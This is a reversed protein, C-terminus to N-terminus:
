EIVDNDMCLNCRPSIHKGCEVTTLSCYKGNWTCDGKCLDGRGELGLTCMNCTAVVHNGCSVSPYECTLENENGCKSLYIKNKRLTAVANASANDGIRYDEGKHHIMIDPNSWYNISMWKGRGPYSMITKLGKIANPQSVKVRYGNASSATREDHNHRVGLIHGLEHAFGQSRLACAKTIVSYAQRCKTAVDVFAVGCRRGLTYDFEATFLTTTDAQSKPVDQQFKYLAKGATLTEYDRTTIMKMCHIKLTINTDSNKFGQNTELEVM